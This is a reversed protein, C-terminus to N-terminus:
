VRFGKLSEAKIRLKWNARWRIKFRTRWEVVYGRHLGCYAWHIVGLGQITAETEDEM